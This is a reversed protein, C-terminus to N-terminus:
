PRDSLVGSDDRIDGPIDLDAGYGGSVLEAEVRYQNCALGRVTFEWIVEFGHIVHTDLDIELNVVDLRNRTAWDPDAFGSSLDIALVRSADDSRVTEIQSERGFWLMSALIVMPDVYEPTWATDSIADQEDRFTVERWRRGSGDWYEVSQRDESVLHFWQEDAAVMRYTRSRNGSFAGFTVQAMRLETRASDCQGGAWTGSLEYLATGANHLRTRALRVLELNSSLPTATTDVLDERFVLLRQIDSITAGPAVLPHRILRIIDKDSASLEPRRLGADISVISDPVSRYALPALVRVLHHTLGYEVAETTRGLSAYPEESNLYVVMHASEISDDQNVVVDSCGWLGSCELFGASRAEEPTLGVRAVVDAETETQVWEYRIGLDTALSTLVDELVEIYRDNGTAWFKITQDQAWKRVRSSDRGGCNGRPFVTSWAQDTFCEWTARDLFVIRQPITVDVEDEVDGGDLVLTVVGTPVKFQVDASAPGYGDELELGLVEGCGPIVQGGRRCSILIDRLDTVPDSGENVLSATVTVAASGDSYYGTIATEVDFQLEVTPQTDVEVTVAEVNERGWRYDNELEGAYLDFTVTGQPLVAEMTGEFEGGPLLNALTMTGACINDPDNRCQIAVTIEGSPAVGRNQVKFDISVNAGGGRIFGTTSQSLAEVVLDVYDVDVNFVADNNSVDVERTDPAASVNVQHQGKPLDLGFTLEESVGGQLSRVTGVAQSNAVIAIPGTPVSGTNTLNVTFNVKGDSVIQYSAPSLVVDSALIEMAVISISEDIQVRIQPRGPTLRLNFLLPASDGPALPPVSTATEPDGSDVSVLLATDFPRRADGKNSVM